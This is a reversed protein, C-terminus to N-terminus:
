SELVVLDLKAAVGDVARAKRLRKRGAPRYGQKGALDYAAATTLSRVKEVKTHKDLKAALNVPDGIVTYELRSEDGIAGFIVRGTTVAVGIKLPTAGAAAREEAWAKTDVLVDQAARMADAAYTESPMAAGFTALIGDGLFKDITGGHRRIIPVIRAQYETLIAIVERAPLSQSLKTFGRIDTTLIAADRAEGEGAQVREESHAIQDAIEPSFFRSLERHADQEALSRVLVGRAQRLALALIGSVVLISIIKDFEAGLLISNSTLYTVYDRTIMMDEPDSYLVYVIMCGWGLAAALGTLLVYRAEFRLTRLAIFIFVYLLTPTKLSFSPPQNYDLHFSWILAILLTIDVIVSLGLVWGPLRTRYSMSLRILTFGLYAALIWSIPRDVQPVNLTNPALLFLTLFTLVVALQVWGITRESADQQDLIATKVRAPLNAGQSAALLSGSMQKAM